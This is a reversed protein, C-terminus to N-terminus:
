CNGSPQPKRRPRTQPKVFPLLDFLSYTQKRQQLNQRKDRKQPPLFRQLDLCINKLILTIYFYIIGDDDFIDQTDNEVEIEKQLDEIM